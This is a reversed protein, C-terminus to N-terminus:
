QWPNYRCPTAPLPGDQALGKGHWLVKGHNAISTSAAVVEFSLIPNMGMRKRKQVSLHGGGMHFVIVTEDTV